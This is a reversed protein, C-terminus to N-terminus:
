KSPIIQGSRFGFVGIIFPVNGGMKCLVKIIFIRGPLNQGSTAVIVGCGIDCGIDCCIDCCIDCGVDYVIDCGIDCVIDCVTDCCINSTKSKLCILKNTVTSNM